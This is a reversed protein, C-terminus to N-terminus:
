QMRELHLLRSGHLVCYVGLLTYAVWGCQQSCVRHAILTVCLMCKLWKMLSYSLGKAAICFILNRHCEARPCNNFQHQFTFFFICLIERTHYWSIFSSAALIVKMLIESLEVGQNRFARSEMVISWTPAQSFFPFLRTQHTKPIHYINIHSCIIFHSM